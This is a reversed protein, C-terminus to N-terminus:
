SNAGISSASEIRYLAEERFRGYGCMAYWGVSQFRRLRDTVPGFVVQPEPGYMTSFAHALGEQGM